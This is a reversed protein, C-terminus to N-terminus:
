PLELISGVTTGNRFNENIAMVCEVISSAGITGGGGLTANAEDLVTQVSWGYCASSENVVLLDRLNRDSAGFDPDCLDFELNLALALTHGALSGAHTTIPDSHSQEFSGTEGDQPLFAAVASANSFAAYGDSRGISLGDSFCSAFNTELYTDSNDAGWDAQTWTRFDGAQIPPPVAEEPLM